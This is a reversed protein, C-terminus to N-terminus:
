KKESIKELYEELYKTLESLQYFKAERLLEKHLVPDAPMTGPDLYGDRLFNLIYRFHIGDRDIFYSGDSEKKLEHRGSFMAALMSGPDRQLTQISTTYTQGGIDLKIRSEQIKHMSAMQHLEDQFKAEKTNFEKQKKELQDHDQKLLEEQRAVQRAKDDLFTEKACTEELKAELTKAMKELTTNKEKLLTQGNQLFNEAMQRVHETINLTLLDLNTTINTSWYDESKPGHVIDNYKTLEGKPDGPEGTPWNDHGACEELALIYMKDRHICDNLMRFRLLLQRFRPVQAKESIWLRSKKYEAVQFIKRLQCEIYGIEEFRNFKKVQHEVIGSFPSLSCIDFMKEDKFYLHKRDLQHSPAVGFWRVFYKWVDEHLYENNADNHTDMEIPGPLEAEGSISGKSAGVYEEWKRYWMKSVAYTCTCETDIEMIIKRQGEADPICTGEQTSNESVDEDEIKLM